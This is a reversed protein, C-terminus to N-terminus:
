IHRGQQVATDYFIPHSKKTHTILSLIHIHRYITEKMYVQLLHTEEVQFHNSSINYRANKFNINQIMLVSVTM